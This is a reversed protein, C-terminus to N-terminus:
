KGNTLSGVISRSDQIMELSFKKLNRFKSAIFYRCIGIYHKNEFILRQKGSPQNIRYICDLRDRIRKGVVDPSLLARIDNAARLGSNNAKEPNEVVNRMLQAAHNIDPDAWVDGKKYSGTEQALAVLKYDVLFSNGSNMFDLNASYATAIVPKKYYMAEAMTLGFGESRHLSVYCDRNNILGNIKERSLDQDLFVISPSNSAFQQLEDKRFPQLNKSKLLLMVNNDQKGFAKNFAQIVAQPNKRTYNSNEDFIFLFLFKDEPLKLESRSISNGLLSICYPIVNVPISSHRSIAKAAYHSPAWIEDFLLFSLKWDKPIFPTEWTWIGINYKSWFYKIRNIQLNKSRNMMNWALRDPSTHIINISYSNDNSFDTYATDLVKAYHPLNILLFPTGITEIAKVTSRAAEGLGTTDSLHGTINLGNYNEKFNNIM